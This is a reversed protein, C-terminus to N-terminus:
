FVNHLLEKNIVKIFHIYHNSIFNILVWESGIVM